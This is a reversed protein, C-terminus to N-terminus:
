AGALAAGVIGQAAFIGFTLGDPEATYLENAAVRGGAGTVNEVVITAGLEDELYPAIGRAITDYGGGPSFPVMFTAREGEYCSEQAEVGGGGGGGGTGAATAGEGDDAGCATALLGVVSLLVM